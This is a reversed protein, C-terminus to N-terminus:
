TGTETAPAFGPAEYQQQRLQEERDAQEREEPTMRADKFFDNVHILYGFFPHSELKKYGQWNSLALGLAGGYVIAMLPVGGVVIDLVALATAIISYVLARRRWKSHLAIAQKIARKYEEQVMEM